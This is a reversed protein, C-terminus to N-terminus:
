QYLIFALRHKSWLDFVISKCKCLGLEWGAAVMMATVSALVYAVSIVSFITMTCSRSSVLIVVAAAALAIATSGVATNFMATNTDYWWYDESSFYAKNAEEPAASQYDGFWDETLHWGADLVDNPDDYRARQTFPLFIVTVIGDRSLVASEM